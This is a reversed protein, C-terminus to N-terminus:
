LFHNLLDDIVKERKYETNTMKIKETIINLDSNRTKFLNEEYFSDFDIDVGLVDKITGVFEEILEKDSNRDVDYIEKGFFLEIIKEDMMFYYESDIRRLYMGIIFDEKYRILYESQGVKVLVLNNLYRDKWKDM